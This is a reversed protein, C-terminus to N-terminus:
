PRGWRESLPKPEPRGELPWPGGRRLCAIVQRFERSSQRGAKSYHGNKWNGHRKPQTVPERRRVIFGAWGPPHDRIM